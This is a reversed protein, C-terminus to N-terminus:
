NMRDVSKQFNEELFEKKIKEMMEVYIKEFEPDQLEKEKYEQLTM